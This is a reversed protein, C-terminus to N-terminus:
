VCALMLYRFQHVLLAPHTFPNELFKILPHYPYLVQFRKWSSPQSQFSSVTSVRAKNEARSLVNHNAAELKEAIELQTFAVCCFVIGKSPHFIYLMNISYYAGFAPSFTPKL